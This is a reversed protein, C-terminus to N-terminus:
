STSLVKFFTTISKLQDKQSSMPLEMMLQITTPKNIGQFSTPYQTHKGEFLLVAVTVLECFLDAKRGKM